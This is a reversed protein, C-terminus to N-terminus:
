LLLDVGRKRPPLKVIPNTLLPGRTLNETYGDVFRQYLPVSSSIIANGFGAIIRGVIMSAFATNGDAGTMVAAGVCTIVAGVFAAYRRGLRDSLPHAVFIYSCWTGLYYIATILGKQAATPKHLAKIFGPNVYVPTLIGINYSVAPDAPSELRPYCLYPTHHSVHSFTMLIEPSRVGMFIIWIRLLSM